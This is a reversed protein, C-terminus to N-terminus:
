KWTRAREAGFLFQFQIFILFAETKKRNKEFRNTKNKRNPEHTTRPFLETQNTAALTEM